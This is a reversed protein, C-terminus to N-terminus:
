PPPKTHGGKPEDPEGLVERIFPVTLRRSRALSAADLRDLLELLHLLDRRCHTLLYRAAPEPLDLGAQGARRRLVALRVEDDPPHVRVVLGWGLRSVLDPLGVGLAAPPRRAAMIIAAGTEMSRNFLHFFAHEWEPRGAIRELDDVALLRVAELGELMGPGHEELSGLPLYAVAGGAAALRSCAGQLLHSKGAGSPGHLYVPEVRRTGAAAAEVLAWAEANAGPVFDALDARRDWRLELPLQM